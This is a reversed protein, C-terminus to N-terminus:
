EGYLQLNQKQIKREQKFWVGDIQVQNTTKNDSPTHQKDLKLTKSQKQRLTHVWEDFQSFIRSSSRNKINTTDIYDALLENHIAHKM